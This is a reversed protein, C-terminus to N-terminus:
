GVGNPGLGRLYQRGKTLARSMYEIQPMTNGLVNFGVLELIQNICDVFQAHGIM